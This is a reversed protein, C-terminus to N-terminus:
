ENSIVKSMYGEGYSYPHPNAVLQDIFAKNHVMNLIAERLKENELLTEELKKKSYEIKSLTRRM